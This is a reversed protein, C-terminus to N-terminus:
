CCAHGSPTLCWLRYGVDLGQPNAEGLHDVNPQNTGLVLLNSGREGTAVAVVHQRREVSRRREVALQAVDGPLAVGDAL